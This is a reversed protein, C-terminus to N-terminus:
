NIAIERYYIVPEKFSSGYRQMASCGNRVNTNHDINTTNKTTVISGNPGGVDLLAHSSALFGNNVPCDLTNNPTITM